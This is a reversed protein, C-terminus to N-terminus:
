RLLLRVIFDYIRLKFFFTDNSAILFRVLFACCSLSRIFSKLITDPRPSKSSETKVPIMIIPIFNYAIHLVAIGRDVHSSSPLSFYKFCLNHIWVGNGLYRIVLACTGVVHSNDKTFKNNAVMVMMMKFIIFIGSKHRVNNFLSGYRM